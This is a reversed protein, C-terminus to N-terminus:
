FLIDWGMMSVICDILVHCFSVLVLWCTAALTEVSCSEFQQGQLLLVHAALLLVLLIANARALPILAPRRHIIHPPAVALFTYVLVMISLFVIAAVDYAHSSSVYYLTLPLFSSLSGVVLSFTVSNRLARIGIGNHMLFCAIGDAPIRYLFWKMTAIPLSTPYIGLINAFGVTSAVIIIYAVPVTYLPLILDLAKSGPKVVDSNNRWIVSVVYGLAVLSVLGSVLYPIPSVGLVRISMCDGSQPIM